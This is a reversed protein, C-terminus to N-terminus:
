EQNFFSCMLLRPFPSSFGDKNITQTGMILHWCSEAFNPTMEMMLAGVHVKSKLCLYFKRSPFFLPIIYAKLPNSCTCGLEEAKNWRKIWNIRQLTFSSTFASVAPQIYEREKMHTRGSRGEGESKEWGKKGMESGKMRVRERMELHLARKSKRRNKNSRDGWLDNESNARRQVGSEIVTPCLMSISVPLSWLWMRTLQSSMKGLKNWVCQQTCIPLASGVRHWMCYTDM